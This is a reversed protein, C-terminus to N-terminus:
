NGWRTIAAGARLYLNGRGCRTARPPFPLSARLGWYVPVSAAQFEQSAAGLDDREMCMFHRVGQEVAKALM